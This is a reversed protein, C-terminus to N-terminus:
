GKLLGRVARTVAIEGTEAFADHNAEIRDLRYRYNVMLGAAQAIGKESRDGMWHIAHLEAGNGLHFRAVPDVPGGRPRKAELFYEAALRLMRPKLADELTNIRFAASCTVADESQQETMWRTFGPVPSLTVFETVGPLEASLDRAVQKILFAGFSVGALGAQCNSISYFVATTAAEPAVADRDPDLVGQISGPIERTLAVEVFILPEDPMSPHFFAFCRRDPPAIRRRLEDWDSIAHVAEYAIIKELIAAPTQWDIPRLVLFGRNFWSGLLHRFDNDIRRFQKHERLLGLLDARMQVLRATGGPAMNLRRLLEQRPPETARFLRNLTDSTQEDAYDDAAACVEEPDPDYASALHSFFALRGDADLGAYGELIDAALAVGSAEGKASMLADTHAALTAADSAVAGGVRWTGRDLVSGLLDGLATFRSM